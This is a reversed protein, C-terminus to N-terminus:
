ESTLKIEGKFLSFVSKSFDENYSGFDWSERPKLVVGSFVNKNSSVSTILVILKKNSSIVINGPIFPDKVTEIKEDIEVKTM